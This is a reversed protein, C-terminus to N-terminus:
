KRFWHMAAATGQSSRRELTHQMVNELAAFLQQSYSGCSTYSANIAMLSLGYTAVSQEEPFVHLGDPSQCFTFSM